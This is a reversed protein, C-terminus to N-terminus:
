YRSRLDYSLIKHINELDEPTDVGPLHRDVKVTHINIGLELFRLIEVDEINELETKQTLGYHYYRDLDQKKFVYVPVQKFGQIFTGQKNFPIPARSAYLMKGSRNFVVKVINKSFFEQEIDISVVGTTTNGSELYGNYIKKIAEGTILPEDGQVNIIHTGEKFHQSAEFVRDTGTLCNESTLIVNIGYQSCTQKIRESDTAVFINSLEIFETCSRATKVVMPVGEVLALAKNPFRKSELRAPIIIVPKNTKLYSTM